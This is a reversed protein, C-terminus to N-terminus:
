ARNTSPTEIGTRNPESQYTGKTAGHTSEVMSDLGDTLRNACQSPNTQGEILASSDPLQESPTYQISKSQANGAFQKDPLLESDASKAKVHDKPLPQRIQAADTKRGQFGDITRYIGCVDGIFWDFFRVPLLGQALRVLHMNWPLSVWARNREIGRLVQAAVYEPELLPIWSRVGDFMGTKIYFPTVTTVGVGSQQRRLELRLSDSWGSAAWKSAAYVAMRPNSIFGASSSITCIHGSNRRLMDPLFTRTVLMPAMTNVALTRQMDDVDQEHFFGNGTVIGANNVLVHPLGVSANVQEATKAVADPDSVDVVFGHVRGLGAFEALTQNISDPNLDWILLTAGQELVMRGMLKGIGSAGGTILVRKNTFYYM